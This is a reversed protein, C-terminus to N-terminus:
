IRFREFPQRARNDPLNAIQAAHHVFERVERAHRLGRHLRDIEPLDEFRVDVAAVGARAADVSEAVVLAVLDLRVDAGMIRSLLINGVRDYVADEHPM